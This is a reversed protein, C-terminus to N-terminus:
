ENIDLQKMLKKLESKNKIYGSFLTQQNNKIEITDEHISIKSNYEIYFDDKYKHSYISDMKWGLSEIDEKDLYKVRISNPEKKLKFDIFRLSSLEDNLCEKKWEGNKYKVEYDFGIHFESIDPQYYKNEM